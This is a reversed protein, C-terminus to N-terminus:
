SAGPLVGGNPDTVAGSITGTSSQASAMHPFLLAIGLALFVLKSNLLKAFTMKLGGIAVHRFKVFRLAVWFRGLIIHPKRLRNTQRTCGALDKRDIPARSHRFRRM